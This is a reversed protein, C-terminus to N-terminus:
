EAARKKLYENRWTEFTQWDYGLNLRIMEKMLNVLQKQESEGETKIYNEFIKLYLPRLQETLQSRIAAKTRGKSVLEEIVTKQASYM